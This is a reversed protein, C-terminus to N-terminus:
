GEINYVYIKDAHRVYLRGGCIVPHAWYMGDGGKPVNFEGKLEYQDPIAKVLKMTGAREDLTYLMGDAYTLSGKGNPNNWVQKGTLFELCFWGRSNSGAGFLYGNHLIVGGHHNDMIDSQWVKEPIIEKDSVNLKFLMSGKGYGSSIFVYENFVVPDTINLGRQNEFEVTWLLKGTRTDVGYYCNSSSGLIQRYGGFEMIVVSSYGESGPIDNNAWILEGNQKDLCVQFGKKGAPRIYLHNGDILVSESYGYEPMEADFEQQLEKHWLEKGTKADFSALRGREGLHYLIGNDYTPTCRAGTYTTAHSMTTSWTEGNPKKWVLKGNLDFVFVYTQNDDMGSTYILGEGISVSSYGEGLGSATWILEPGDKPWEKMLGTEASKNTRDIGHFCPWQCTNQEGATCGSMSVLLWLIFSERWYKGFITGSVQFFLKKFNGTLKLYLNM